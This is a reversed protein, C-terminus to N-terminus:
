MENWRGWRTGPGRCPSSLHPADKPPGWKGGWWSLTCSVKPNTPAIDPDPVRLLGSHSATEKGERGLVCGLSVGDLSPPTTHLRSIQTERAKRPTFLLMGQTQVPRTLRLLSSKRSPLPISLSCFIFLYLVTYPLALSPFFLHFNSPPGPLM